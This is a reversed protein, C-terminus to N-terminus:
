SVCIWLRKEMGFRYRVSWFPYQVALMRFGSM